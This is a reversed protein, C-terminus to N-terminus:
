VIRTKVVLFLKTKSLPICVSHFYKQFLIYSSQTTKCPICKPYCPSLERSEVNVYRFIRAAGSKIQVFVVPGMIHIDYCSITQGLPPLDSGYKIIRGPLGVSIWLSAGLKRMDGPAAAAAICKNNSIYIGRAQWGIVPQINREATRPPEKIASVRFPFKLDNIEVVSAIDPKVIVIKIFIRHFSFIDGHQWYKRSDRVGYIK